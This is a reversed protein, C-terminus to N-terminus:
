QPKAEEVTEIEEEKKMKTYAIAMDEIRSAVIKPNSINVFDVERQEGSAKILVTGFGFIQGVFTQNVDVAQINGLEVEEERSGFVGIRNEVRKTTLRYVTARRDRICM